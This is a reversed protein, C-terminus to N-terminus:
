VAHCGYPQRSKSAIQVRGFQSWAPKSAVQVRGLRTWTAGLDRGLRNPHSKSADLDRELRTWNPIACTVNYIHHDLAPTCRMHRLVHTRQLPEECTRHAHQLDLKTAREHDLGLAARPHANRRAVRHPVPACINEAVLAPPVNEFRIEHCLYHWLRLVRGVIRATPTPHIIPRAIM